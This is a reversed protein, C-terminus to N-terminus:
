QSTPVGTGTPTAQTTPQNAWCPRGTTTSPTGDGLNSSATSYRDACCCAGRTGRVCHQKGRASYPMCAPPVALPQACAAQQHPTTSAPTHTNNNTTHMRELPWYCWTHAAAPIDALQSLVHWSARAFGPSLRGSMPQCPRSNSVCAASDIQRGARCPCVLVVGAATEAEQWPWRVPGCAPECVGSAVQLLCHASRAAQGFSSLTRPFVPGRVSQCKTIAADDWSFIWMPGAPMRSTSHAHTGCWIDHMDHM